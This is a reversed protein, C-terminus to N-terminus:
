NSTISSSDKSITCDIAKPFRKVDICTYSHILYKLTNERAKNVQRRLLHFYQAPTTPHVIHMNVNDGDIGEESSDCM